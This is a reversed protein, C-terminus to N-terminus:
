KELKGKKNIKVANRETCAEERIKDKKINRKIALSNQARCHDASFQGTRVKGVPFHQPKWSPYNHYNGIRYFIDPTYCKQTTM